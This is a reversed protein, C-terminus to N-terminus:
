LIEKNLEELEKKFRYKEEWDNIFQLVKKKNRSYELSKYLLNLHERIKESTQMPRIWNIDALIEEETEEIYDEM